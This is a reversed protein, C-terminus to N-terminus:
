FRVSLRAYPFRGPVEYQTADFSNAVGAYSVPPDKDTVNNVGLTIRSNYWPTDYTVQVDHYTVSGLRHSGERGDYWYQQFPSSCLGLASLSIDSGDQSDGCPEDQHHIYRMQWSAGWNGYAWTLDLNSKWRPFALNGLNEGQLETENGFGDDVKFEDVYSTDWAIKFEGFRTEPFTYLMLFDIGEVDTSGINVRTALLDSIDGSPARTVLDCFARNEERYCTNLIRTAGVGAITDELEIRYWDVYLAFNELWSPTYV